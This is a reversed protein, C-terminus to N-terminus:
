DRFQKEARKRAEPTLGSAELIAQLVLDIAGASKERLLEYQDAGFRPEIVGHVFMLMEVLQDDVKGGITAETRMAQQEKKSFARIRVSGHWQPVDVVQEVLDQAELIEEASLIRQM